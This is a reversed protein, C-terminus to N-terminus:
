RLRVKLSGYEGYTSSPCKVLGLRETDLACNLSSSLCDLQDGWPGAAADEALRRSAERDLLKPQASSPPPLPSKSPAKALPSGLTAQPPLSQPAEKQTLLDQAPSCIEDKKPPSAVEDRTTTNSTAVPGLPSPGGEPLETRLLEQYVSVAIPAVIDMKVGIQPVGENSDTDLAATPPVADESESADAEDATALEGSGGTSNAMSEDLAESDSGSGYGM